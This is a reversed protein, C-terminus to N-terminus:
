ELIPIRANVGKTEYCSGHGRCSLTDIGRTNHGGRPKEQMACVRADEQM